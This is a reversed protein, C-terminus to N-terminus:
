AGKMRPAPLSDASPSNHFTPGAYVKVDEVLSRKSQEINGIANAPASMSHYPVPRQGTYEQQRQMNRQPTSFGSPESRIHTTGGFTENDRM